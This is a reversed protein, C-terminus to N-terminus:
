DNLLASIMSKLFKKGAEQSKEPHFQIGVINKKKIIAPFRKLHKTFGIQYESPGDYIFSHNFYFSDGDSEFFTSESKEIEISNWGIHWAPEQIPVILGPILSLGSNFGFEYSGDTLLQMGLCIGIIPKNKKAEHIIFDVIGRKQMELKAESFAGVGPIIILNSVAIEDLDSTVICKYGIENLTNKVSRHNGIGYDIIAVKRNL